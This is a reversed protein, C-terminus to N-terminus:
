IKKNLTNSLPNHMLGGKYATIDNVTIFGDLGEKHMCAYLDNLRKRKLTVLIMLKEGDRGMGKFTTVGYGEARLKDVIDHKLEDIIVRVQVDGFALYQEVKTGIINGLSFGTAYSLLYYINDLENVVTGLVKIYIIIEVFGIMAAIKSM